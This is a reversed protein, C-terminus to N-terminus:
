LSDYRTEVEELIIKATRVWAKGSIFSDEMNQIISAQDDVVAQAQKEIANLIFLQSMAGSRSFEMLHTVFETNTM